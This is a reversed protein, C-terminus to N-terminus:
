RRHKNSRLLGCGTHRSRFGTSRYLPGRILNDAKEIQFDPGVSNTISYGQDLGNCSGAVVIREHHCVRLPHKVTVNM